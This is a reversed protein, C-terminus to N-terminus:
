LTGATFITPFCFHIIHSLKEIAYKEFYYKHQIAKAGGIFHQSPM